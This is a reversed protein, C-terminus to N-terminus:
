NIGQREIRDMLITKFYYLVPLFHVQKLAKLLLVESYIKKLSCEMKPDNNTFSPILETWFDSCIGTLSKSTLILWVIGKIMGYRGQKGANGEQLCLYKM